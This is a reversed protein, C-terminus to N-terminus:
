LKFLGLDFLERLTYLPKSSQNEKKAIRHSNQSDIHSLITRYNYNLLYVNFKFNSVIQRDFEDSGPPGEGSM